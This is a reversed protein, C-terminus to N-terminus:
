FILFFDFFFIGGFILSTKANFFETVKLKVPLPLGIILKNKQQPQIIPIPPPSKVKNVLVALPAIKTGLNFEYFKVWPGNISNSYFDNENITQLDYLHVIELWSVPGLLQNQVKLYYDIELDMVLESIDNKKM